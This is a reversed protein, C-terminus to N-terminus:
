CDGIRAGQVLTTVTIQMGLIDSKMLMSGQVTSGKTTFEGSINQTAGQLHCVAAFSMSKNKSKLHTECLGEPIDALAKDPKFQGNKICQQNINEQVGLIDSKVITTFEWLGVEVELSDASVSVSCLLTSLLLGSLTIKNKM